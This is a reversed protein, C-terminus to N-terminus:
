RSVGDYNLSGGIGSHFLILAVRVQLEHRGNVLFGGLRGLVMLFTNKTEKPEIEKYNELM